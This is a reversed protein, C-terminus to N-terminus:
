CGSHPGPIWCTPLSLPIFPSATAPPPTAPAHHPTTTAPPPTTTSPHPTTTAPPPTVTAHHPPVNASLVATAPPSTATDPYPSSLASPLFLLPIRAVPRAIHAPLPLIIGVVWPVLIPLSVNKCLMTCSLIKMTYALTWNRTKYINPYRSKDSNKQQKGTMTNLAEEISDQNCVHKGENNM